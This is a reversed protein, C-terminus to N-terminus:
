FAINFVFVKIRPMSDEQSSVEAATTLSPPIKSELIT